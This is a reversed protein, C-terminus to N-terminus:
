NSPMNYKRYNKTQNRVSAVVSVPLHCVNLVGEHICCYQSIFAKYTRIRVQDGLFYMEFSKNGLLLCM